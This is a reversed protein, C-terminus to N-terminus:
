SAMREISFEAPRLVGMGGWAPWDSGLEGAGAGDWAFGDAAAGDAPLAGGDAPLAGGRAAV